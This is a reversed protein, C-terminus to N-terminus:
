SKAGRLVTTVWARSVGLRRALEARSLDYREILRIYEEFRAEKKRKELERKDFITLRHAHPECRKRSNPSIPVLVTLIGDKITFQQEPTLHQINVVNRM